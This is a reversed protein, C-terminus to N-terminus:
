EPAALIVIYTITSVVIVCAGALVQRTNFEVLGDVCVGIGLVAALTGITALVVRLDSWVRTRHEPDAYEKWHSLKMVAGQAVHVRPLLFALPWYVLVVRGSGGFCRYM